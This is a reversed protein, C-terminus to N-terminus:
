VDKDELWIKDIRYVGFYSRIRIYYSGQKVSLKKVTLDKNSGSLVIYRTAAKLEAATSIDFALYYSNNSYPDTRQVQMYLQKGTLDVPKNTTLRFGGDEGAHLIVMSKEYLAANKIATWGGTISDCTDGENYLYIRSDTKQAMLMAKLKTRLM